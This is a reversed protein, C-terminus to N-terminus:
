VPFAVSREIDIGAFIHEVAMSATAAAIQDAEDLKREVQREPLSDFIEQLFQRRGGIVIDQLLSNSELALLQLVIGFACRIEVLTSNMIRSDNLFEADTISSACVKPAM